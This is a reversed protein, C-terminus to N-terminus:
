SIGCFVSITRFTQITDNNVKYEMACFVMYRFMTSSFMLHTLFKHFQKVLKYFIYYVQQLHFV